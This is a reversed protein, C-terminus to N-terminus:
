ENYYTSPSWLYRSFLLFDRTYFKLISQHYIGEHILGCLIKSQFLSNLEHRDLSNYYQPSCVVFFYKERTRLLLYTKKKGLSPQWWQPALGGRRLPYGCALFSRWVNQDRFVGKAEELVMEREACAKRVGDMWRFPPGGRGREGMESMYM